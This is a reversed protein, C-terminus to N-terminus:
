TRARRWTGCARVVHRRLARVCAVRCAARPDVSSAQWTNCVLREGALSAGAVCVTDRQPDIVLVQMYIDRQPDVVLVQM